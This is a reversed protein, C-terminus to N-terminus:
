GDPLSAVIGLVDDVSVIDFRTHPQLPEDGPFIALFPIASGGLGQLLRELMDTRPDDQSIDAIMRVVGKAEFAQEVADDGYVWKENYKCNPCWTATFDVLVNDGAALHQAFTDPDFAEWGNEEASFLGRVEVFALRGGLAALLLAVGLHIRRWGRTREWTAFRGYWWCAIAVFLLFMVTFLLLDQRLSVMLYIVTAMLVFGMAHKFTDMWAGPKPVLKLLGPNATLVVYPLAMGCGLALFVAYIVVANQSLTWTLTSGLFPGSCPTALVTALMGKFFADGLGERPPGSALGGVSAPVGLEYVGFLSLAFAFVIGIMVVLFTPSQFQEGWSQGAVAAMTALALFVVVIGAAFAIGLALIRQKDEGAQQVFSLVKISIVPLVCPMVNLIMGALFALLLWMGLGRTSGGDDEGRPAFEPFTVADYDIDGTAPAGAGLRPDAARPAGRALRAAAQQPAGDGAATSTPGGATSPAATNLDAPFDAFLADPGAGASQVHESYPVCSGSDECTLGDLDAAVDAGSAGPALTGLAYLVLQHEHGWIWADLGPQDLKLPAPFRVPGWRIGDGELTVVTPKGIPVNGDVFGLQDHYLHWGDDIAIDLVLRVQDGDVRHFLQANAHGSDMGGLGFGAQAPLDPALWAVLFLALTPLSLTRATTM